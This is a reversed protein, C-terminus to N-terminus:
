DVYVWWKSVLFRVPFLLSTTMIVSYFVGYSVFLYNLSVSAIYFSFLYIIYKILMNRTVKSEFVFRSTILFDFIYVIFYSFAILLIDSDFIFGFFFLLAFLFLYLFVSLLGYRLIVEFM